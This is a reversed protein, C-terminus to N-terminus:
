LLLGIGATVLIRPVLRPVVSGRLQWLVGLWSKADYEIM